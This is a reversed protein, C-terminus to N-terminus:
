LNRQKGCITVDIKLDVVGARDDVSRYTCDEASGSPSLADEHQAFLRQLLKPNFVSGPALGSNEVLSKAKERDIGVIEFKRVRFQPGEELDVDLSVTESMDDISIAPAASFNIFGQEAYARRMAEIGAGIKHTDFVESRKIPIMSRLQGDSFRTNNRFTIEGSKYQRGQVLHITVDMMNAEAGAQKFEPSSVVAKFYGERQWNDRARGSFESKWDDSSQLILTQLDSRIKDAVPPLPEDSLFKM